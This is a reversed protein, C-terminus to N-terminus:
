GIRGTPRSAGDGHMLDAIAAVKLPNPTDPHSTEAGVRVRRRPAVMGSGAGSSTAHSAVVRATSVRQKQHPTVGCPTANRM